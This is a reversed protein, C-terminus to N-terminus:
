NRLSEPLRRMGALLPLGLAYCAVAQGVGVYLMCLPLAIEPAYLYHVLVGVVLGNFVVPPLAALVARKYLLRTALAAMLSTLSGFVIDLMHAGGLLNALLCGVFLGPIAEPFLVPLLTMAEAVRLQLPGFSIPALLLTIVAYLAAIMAGRVLRRTTFPNTGLLQNWLSENMDIMGGNQKHPERAQEFLVTAAFDAACLDTTKNLSLITAFQGIRNDFITYCPAHFVALADVSAGDLADFSAFLLGKGHTLVFRAAVLTDM